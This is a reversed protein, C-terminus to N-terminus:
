HDIQQRRQARRCCHAGCGLKTWAFTPELSYWSEDYFDTHAWRAVGKATVVNSESEKCPSTAHTLQLYNVLRTSVRWNVDHKPGRKTSVRKDCLCLFCKDQVASEIYYNSVEIEFPKLATITMVFHEPYWFDSFDQMFRCVGQLFGLWM